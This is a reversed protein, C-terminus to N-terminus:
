AVMYCAPDLALGDLVLNPVIVAPLGIFRALRAGDGGTIVLKAEVDVGDPSARCDAIFAALSRIVGLRIGSATDMGLLYRDEIPASLVDQADGPGAARELDRRNGQAIRGGDLRCRSRHAWGFAPWGSRHYGCHCGHWRGRCVVSWSVEALSCVDGVLSRCGAPGSRQLRKQHWIRHRAFACLGALNRIAGRITEAVLASAAPGAVNAVRVEDPVPAGELAKALAGGLDHNRHWAHGTGVLGEASSWAWKVRSNGVDLLLKM